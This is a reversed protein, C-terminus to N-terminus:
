DKHHRCRDGANKVIMRCAKGDKKIFGCRLANPDHAGCYGAKNVIVAKCAVGKKTIGKCPTKQAFSAISILLAVALTILKM